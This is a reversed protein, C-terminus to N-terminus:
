WRDDEGVDALLDIMGESEVYSSCVKIIEYDVSRANNRVYIPDEPMLNDSFEMLAEGVAGYQDDIIEPKGNFEDYEDCRLVKDVIYYYLTEDEYGELSLEGYAEQTIIEIRPKVTRAKMSLMEREEREVESEQYFDEDEVPHVSAGTALAEEESIDIAGAKQLEEHVVYWPKAEMTQEDKIVYGQGAIIDEAQVVGLERYAESLNAAMVKRDAKYQDLETKVAEVAKKKDATLAETVSAIEEDAIAEYKAKYYGRSALVGILLGGCFLGAGILVKWGARM